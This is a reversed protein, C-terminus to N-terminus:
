ICTNNEYIFDKAIKILEERTTNAKVYVVIDNQNKYKLYLNKIRNFYEEDYEIYDDGIMKLRNLYDEYTDWLLIINRFKFKDKIIENIHEEFLNPRNFLESYVYESMQFRAIILPDPELVAMDNAQKILFEKLAKRWEEPNHYDPLHSIDPSFISFGEKELDKLLTDKGARDQGEIDIITKMEIQINKCMYKISFLVM